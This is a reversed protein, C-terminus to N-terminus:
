FIMPILRDTHQKYEDYDPCQASILKEEYILKLLLTLSLCGYSAWVIWNNHFIVAPLFFILISAYMPHRIYRYPGTSVLNLHPLPDPVINFHGLHMTKVAWLGLAIGLLHIFISLSNEPLGMLITLVAIWFFQSMVLGYSWIPHLLKKSDSLPTKTM